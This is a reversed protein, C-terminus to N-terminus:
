VLEKDELGGETTGRLKNTGDYNVTHKKEMEKKSKRLRPVKCRNLESKSKLVRVGTLEIRVTEYIQRTLPDSFSSVATIKLKTTRAVRSPGPGL